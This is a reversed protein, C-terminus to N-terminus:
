HKSFYILALDTMILILLFLIGRVARHVFLHKKKKILSQQHSFYDLYESTPMGDITSQPMYDNTDRAILKITHSKNNDSRHSLPTIKYKAHPKNETPKQEKIKCGFELSLETIKLSEAPYLSVLPLRLMQHNRTTGDGTPLSCEWSIFEPQGKQDVNIVSRLRNTQQENLKQQANSATLQLSQYLEQLGNTTM